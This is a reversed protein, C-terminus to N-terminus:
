LSLRADFLRTDAGRELAACELAHLELMRKQRDLNGANECVVDGEVLAAADYMGSWTVACVVKDGSLFVAQLDVGREIIPAHVKLPQRLVLPLIYELAIGDHHIQEAGAARRKSMVLALVARRRAAAA